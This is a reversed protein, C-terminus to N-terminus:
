LVVICRSRMKKLCVNTLMYIYYIHCSYNIPKTTRNLEETKIQWAHIATWTYLFVTDISDELM